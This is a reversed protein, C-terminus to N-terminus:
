RRENNQYLITLFEKKSIMEAGLSELHDTHSQCDIIDLENRHTEVFHIFGAKSANSVKAFMSEGCFVRGMQIGYFGGVLAGDQWVEVSKALGYEHLQIFSQMLEDSLWTGSQDRRRIQQCNSIVARFDQNETFTFVNRNLIKRMSKSVHLRDPFLVFRPDPCWWLIEEDPNYWPFIGLTYAFWVREVSLDGGFAIVGEHGDYLLPDPFSIEHEDLRVM